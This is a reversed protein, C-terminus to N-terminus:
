SLKLKAIRNPFQRMNADDEDDLGKWRGIAEKRVRCRIRQWPWFYAPLHPRPTAVRQVRFIGADSSNNNVYGCGTITIDCRQCTHESSAQVRERGQSQGTTFVGSQCTRWTNPEIRSGKSGKGRRGNRRRFHTAWCFTVKMRVHDLQHSNPLEQRRRMCQPRSCSM